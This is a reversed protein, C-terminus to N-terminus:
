SPKAASRADPIFTRPLCVAFVTEAADCRAEVEGGHARVIEKVIYLGLGLSDAAEAEEGTGRMLPQFLDNLTTTPTVTGANRIEIRVDTEGGSVSVRVAEDRVGYKLANVVLNSLVQQIRRGDWSGHSDGSVILEIRRGPHAARIQDLEDACLAELNAPHRTVNIGVGLQTRSFDVLDSVLDQIQVGSAILRQASKSVQDGANLAGLLHATMQITQLPTRMDHGLMGLLLNRSREVQASFFAVSEALAQDIAENFRIIDEVSPPESLGEDL